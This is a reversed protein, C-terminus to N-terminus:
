ISIGNSQHPFQPKLGKTWILAPERRLCRRRRRGHPADVRQSPQRNGAARSLQKPRDLLHPMETVQALDRISMPQIEQVATAGTATNQDISFRNQGTADALRFTTLVACKLQKAIHGPISAEILRQGDHQAPNQLLSGKAGQDRGEIISRQTPNQLAL